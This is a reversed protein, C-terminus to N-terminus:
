YIAKGGPQFIGTACATALMYKQIHWMHEELIKSNIIQVSIPIDWLIFYVKITFFNYNMSLSAFSGPDCLWKFPSLM